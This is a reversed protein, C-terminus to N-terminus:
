GLRLAVSHGFLTSLQTKVGSGFPPAPLQASVVCIAHVFENYRSTSPDLQVVSFHVNLFEVM